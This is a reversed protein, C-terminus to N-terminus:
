GFNFYLCRGRGRRRSCWCYVVHWIISVTWVNWIDWPFYQKICLSIEKKHNQRIAQAFCRWFIFQSIFLHFSLSYRVCHTNFLLLAVCQYSRKAYHGNVSRFLISKINYFANHRGCYKCKIKALCVTVNSSVFAFFFFNNLRM